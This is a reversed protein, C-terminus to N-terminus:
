REDTNKGSDHLENNVGDNDGYQDDTGDAGSPPTTITMTTM